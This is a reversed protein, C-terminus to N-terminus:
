TTMAERTLPVVHQAGQEQQFLQLLHAHCTFFLIQRHTAMRKMARITRRVRDADFNVVIDDLVIPLLAKHSYEEILAFRIALYLQEVTGRSLFAPEFRRGDCREVEVVERDIPSLVRQYRGGTMEKFYHSAQRLVRPQKEKEYDAIAEAVFHKALAIVAWDKATRELDTLLQQIRHRHEALEEGDALRELQAKAQTREDQLLKIRQLATELQERMSQLRDKCALRSMGAWERLMDAVREDRSSQDSPPDTQKKTQERREDTEVLRRFLHLLENKMAELRKREQYAEARRRFTEGDEAGGLSLLERLAQCELQLRHKTKRIAETVEALQDTWQKKVLSADTTKELRRTLERVGYDPEDTPLGTGVSYVVAQYTQLFQKVAREHAEREEEIDAIRRLTRKAEELDSMMDLVVDPSLVNDEGHPHLRQSRLWSQWAGYTQENNKKAQRWQEEKREKERHVDDLDSQLEKLRLRWRNWADLQKRESELQRLWSARDNGNRVYKQYLEDCQASLKNKEEALTLLEKELRDKKRVTQEKSRRYLELRRAQGVFRDYTVAVLVGLTVVAALPQHLWLFIVPTVVTLLAAGWKEWGEGKRSAMPQFAKEDESLDALRERIAMMRQDLSGIRQEIQTLEELAHQEERLQEPTKVSGDVTVPQEPQESRWAEIKKALADCQDQAARYEHAALTVSQKSDNLRGAFRQVAERAAISTDVSEVRAETWDPGLRALLEALRGKEQRVKMVCDDRQKCHERFSSLTDRLQEIAVKEQLIREDVRLTALQENLRHRKEELASLQARQERISHELQDLRSIGDEPFSEIEPLEALRNHAFVYQEYDDYHTFLKEQWAIAHRWHDVQREMAEIESELQKLKQALSEYQENSQMLETLTKRTERIDRLKANILPRSSNPRFLADSKDDLMKQVRIITHGEGTGATYIFRNVEHDELAEVQQLEELGFAFIRNFVDEDMRHLLQELLAEGAKGGDPLHVTVDGSVKQRYIREIRYTQGAEDVVTLAGGFSGGEVPEYRREPYRRSAFGFLVGRIFALLTSKGAENHGFVVNIGERFRWKEDRLQGFGYIHIEEIRM